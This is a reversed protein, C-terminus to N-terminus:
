TTASRTSAAATPGSGRTARRKAAATAASSKATWGSRTSDTAHIVSRRSTSQPTNKSRAM